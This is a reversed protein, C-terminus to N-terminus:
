KIKGFVEDLLTLMEQCTNYRGNSDTNEQQLKIVGERLVTYTHDRDQTLAEITSEKVAFLDEIDWIRSDDVHPTKADEEIKNWVEEVPKLTTM